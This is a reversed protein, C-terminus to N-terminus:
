FVFKIKMRIGRPAQWGYATGYMSNLYRHSNLYGEAANAADIYNYNGTELLQYDLPPNISGSRLLNTDFYVPSHQNFLNLVNVEFGLKLHENQKSVSLENVFSLDSQSYSPTRRANISGLVFDGTTPDRTVDVFNGRGEVFVPAGM